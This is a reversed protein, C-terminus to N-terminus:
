APGDTHAIHDAVRARVAPTLQADVHRLYHELYHRREGMTVADSDLFLLDHPSLARVAFMPVPCRMVPLPNYVSTVTSLPHFEGLMLGREVFGM